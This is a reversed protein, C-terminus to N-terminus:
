VIHSANEKLFAELHFHFSIVTVLFSSFPFIDSYNKKSFLEHFLKTQKSKTAHCKCTIQCIWTNRQIIKDPRITMREIVLMCSGIAARINSLQYRSWHFIVYLASYICRCNPQRSLNIEVEFFKYKGISPLWCFTWSCYTHTNKLLYIFIKLM